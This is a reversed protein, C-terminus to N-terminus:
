QRGLTRLADGASPRRPARRLRGEQCQSRRSIGPDFPRRMGLGSM